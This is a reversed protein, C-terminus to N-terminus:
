LIEETQKNVRRDNRKWQFLLPKMNITYFNFLNTTMPLQTLRMCYELTPLVDFQIIIVSAKKDRDREHYMMVRENGKFAAIGCMVCKIRVPGGQKGSPWKVDSVRSGPLCHLTVRGM